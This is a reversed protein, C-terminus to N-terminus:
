DYECIRCRTFGFKFYYILNSYVTGTLPGTKEHEKIKCFWLLTCAPPFYCSEEKKSRGCRRRLDINNM